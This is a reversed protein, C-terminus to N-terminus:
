TKPEIVPEACHRCTSVLPRTAPAPEAQPVPLQPLGHSDELVIELARVGVEVRAPIKTFAEDVKSEVKRTLPLRVNDPMVPEVWHRCTLVMPRTAPEPAAQPDEPVGPAHSVRNALARVGVEVVAPIKTFAEDVKSEVKRTLPLRVNDPMVPEVWHRCTLVMPRTAPEPAAQPDEPVGPAHSVRNALARVGVEVVAPIKTFAEDVKSEVKRTLPAKDTVVVIAEEVM